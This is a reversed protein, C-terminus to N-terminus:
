GGVGELGKVSSVELNDLIRERLAERKKRVELLVRKRTM